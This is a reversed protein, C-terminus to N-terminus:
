LDATQCFCWSQWDTDDLGDRVEGRQGAGSEDFYQEVSGELTFDPLWRERGAATKTRRRAEIAADFAKLEPRNAQAESIAFSQFALLYKPNSTLQYFLKNGLMLLPDSLDTEEPVFLEQLPRNLIRNVATMADLATSEKELVDIKDTAFKTEWRYIEDPGAIGTSLRIRARDLHAQTLKLNDKVLQEITRARLVNFYSVSAQYIIDLRVTEHDMVRSEQNHEEVTYTAWSRESYIQQSGTATGTWAKEPTSGM